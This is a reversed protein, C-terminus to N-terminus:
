RVVRDGNSSSHTSRRRANGAPPAFALKFLTLIRVTNM